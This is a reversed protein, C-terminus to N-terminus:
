NERSKRAILSLVEEIEEKNKATYAKELLYYSIDHLEPKIKSLEKILIKHGKIDEHEFVNISMKRGDKLQLTIVTGISDTKIARIQDYPIFYDKRKLLYSLPRTPPKFGSKYIAFRQSPVSSLKKVKTFIIFLMAVIIIFSLYLDEKSAFLSIVIIIFLGFMLVILLVNLKLSHTIQKYKKIPMAYIQEGMNVDM